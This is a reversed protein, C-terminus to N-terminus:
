IYWIHQEFNNIKKPNQNNFYVLHNKSINKQLKTKQTVRNGWLLLLITTFTFLIFNRRNM